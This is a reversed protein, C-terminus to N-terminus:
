EWRVPSSSLSLPCTIQGLERPLAPLCLWVKQRRLDSYQSRNDPNLNRWFCVCPNWPFRLHDGFRLYSHSFTLCWFSLFWPLPDVPAEGEQPAQLFVISCDDPSNSPSILCRHKQGPASWCGSSRQCPSSTLCFHEPLSSIPPVLLTQWVQFKSM